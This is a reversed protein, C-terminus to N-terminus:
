PPRRSATMSGGRGTRDRPHTALRARAHAAARRVPVGADALATVIAAPVGAFSGRRLGQSRVAGPRRRERRHVTHMEDPLDAVRPVRYDLLTDNVLLGDAFLMEEFLANGLGQM